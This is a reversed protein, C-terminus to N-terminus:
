FGLSLFSNLRWFDLLLLLCFARKQKFCLTLMGFLVIYYKRGFSSTKKGGSFFANTTTPQVRTDKGRLV